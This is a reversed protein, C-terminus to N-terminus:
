PLRPPPPHSLISLSADPHTRASMPERKEVCSRPLYTFPTFTLCACVFVCVCKVCVVCMGTVEGSSTDTVIRMHACMIMTFCVCFCILSCDGGLGCVCEGEGFM